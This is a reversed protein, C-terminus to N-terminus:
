EPFSSDPVSMGETGVSPSFFVVATFRIFPSEPLSKALLHYM